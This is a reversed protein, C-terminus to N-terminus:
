NDKAPYLKRFCDPCCGASFEAETHRALYTEVNNWYGQDDRISKCSSCIPIFGKLIKVEDLATRLEQKRLSISQILTLVLERLNCVPDDGVYEKYVECDTCLEFKDAFKGQVEGGCLTGVQLWCRGCESKYALCDKEDCDKVLYCFSEVSRSLEKTWGQISIKDDHLSLKVFTKIDDILREASDDCQQLSRRRKNTPKFREILNRLIKKMEGERNLDEEIM